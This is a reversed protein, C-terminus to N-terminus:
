GLILGELEMVRQITLVDDYSGDEDDEEDVDDYDNEGITERVCICTSNIQSKMGTHKWHKRRRGFVQPNEVGGGGCQRRLPLGGGAGDLIVLDSVSWDSSALGEYYTQPHSYSPMM